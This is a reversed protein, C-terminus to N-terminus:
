PKIWIPSCLRLFKLIMKRMIGGLTLPYSIITSIGTLIQSYITLISFSDYNLVNIQGYSTFNRIVTNLKFADISQMVATRHTTSLTLLSITRISFSGYISIITLKM